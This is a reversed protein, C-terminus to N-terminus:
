HRINLGLLGAAEGAKILTYVSGLGGPRSHTPPAPRPPPTALVLCSLCVLLFSTVARFM